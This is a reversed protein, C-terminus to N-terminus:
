HKHLWVTTMPPHKAKAFLDREDVGASQGKKTKERACRAGQAPPGPLRSSGVGLWVEKKQSMDM